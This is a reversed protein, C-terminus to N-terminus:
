WGQAGQSKGIWALATAIPSERGEINVVRHLSDRVQVMITKSEIKTSNKNKM